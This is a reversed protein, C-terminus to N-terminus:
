DNADIEIRVSFQRAIQEGMKGFKKEGYQRILCELREVFELRLKELEGSVWKDIEKTEDIM